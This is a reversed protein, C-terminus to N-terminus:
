SLDGLLSCGMSCVASRVRYGSAHIAAIKANIFGTGSEPVYQNFLPLQSSLMDNTFPISVLRGPRRHMMQWTARDEDSMTELAARRNESDLQSLSNALATLRM